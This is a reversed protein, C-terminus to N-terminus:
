KLHLFFFIIFEFCVKWTPLFGFTCQVNSFVYSLFIRYERLFPKKYQPPGGGKCFLPHTKKLPNIIKGQNYLIGLHLNQHKRSRSPLAGM